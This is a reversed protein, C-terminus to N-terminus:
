DLVFCDNELQVAEAPEMLRGLGSDSPPTQWSDAAAFHESEDVAIEAIAGILLFHGEHILLRVIAARKCNLQRGCPGAAGFTRLRLLM